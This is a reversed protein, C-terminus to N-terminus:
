ERVGGAPEGIPVSIGFSLDREQRRDAIAYWGRVIVRWRARVTQAQVQSHQIGAAIRTTIIDYVM